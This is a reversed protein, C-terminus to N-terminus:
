ILLDELERPLEPEFILAQCSTNMAINSVFLSITTIMWIIELPLIRKNSKSM